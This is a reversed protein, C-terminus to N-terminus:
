HSPSMRYAHLSVTGLSTEPACNWKHRRAAWHHVTPCVDLLHLCWLQLCCVTNSQETCDCRLRSPWQDESPYLNFMCRKQLPRPELLRLLLHAKSLHWHANKVNLPILVTGVRSVGVQCLIQDRMTSDVPAEDSARTRKTKVTAAVFGSFRCHLYDMMLRECCARFPADSLWSPPNAKYLIPYEFDAQQPLEQTQKYFYTCLVEAVVENAVHHYEAPFSPHGDEILWKYMDLGLQVCVKLIEVLKFTDKIRIIEVLGGKTKTQSGEADVVIASEEINSIHLLKLNSELILNKQRKFNPKKNESETYKVIIGTLRREAEVLGSQERGLKDGAEASALWKRDVSERAAAKKKEKHLRGVEKAKLNLKINIPLPWTDLPSCGTDM